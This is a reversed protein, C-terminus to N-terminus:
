CWFSHPNFIGPSYLTTSFAIISGMSNGQFPTNRFNLDAVQGWKPCMDKPNSRMYNSADLGYNMTQILGNTYFSPTASTHIVDILSTGISPTVFRYYKGHTFNWPISVTGTFDMENWKFPILEGTRRIVYNSSRGGYTFNVDFVPYLGQYSLNAFIKGTGENIDYDYGASAILSSLVNQSLVSVGPHVMLNNVDFSAPAWSHINFLHLVKNYKASKFLSGKISDKKLDYCSDSIM